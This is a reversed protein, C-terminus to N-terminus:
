EGTGGTVQSRQLHNNESILNDKIIESLKRNPSQITEMRIKGTKKSYIRALTNYWVRFTVTVSLGSVEKVSDKGYHWQTVLWDCVPPVNECPIFRSIKKCSETFAFFGNSNDEIPMKTCKVAIQIRGTNYCSISFSINDIKFKKHFFKSRKEFKWYRSNNFLFRKIGIIELRVDHIAADTWDLSDLLSSLDILQCKVANHKKKLSKKAVGMPDSKQHLLQEFLGNEPLSYFNWISRVRCLQGQKCLERLRNRLYTACYQRPFQDPHEKCYDFLDQLCFSQGIAKAIYLIFQDAPYGQKQLYNICCESAVNQGIKQKRNAQKGIATKRSLSGKVL